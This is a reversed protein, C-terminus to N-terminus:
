QGIRVLKNTLQEHLADSVLYATMSLFVGSSFIPDIFGRTM